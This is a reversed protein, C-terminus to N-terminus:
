ASCGPTCAMYVKGPGSPPDDEGATDAACAGNGGDTGPGIAGDLKSTTAPIGNDGDSAPDAEGDLTLAAARIGSGGDCAPDPAGNLKPAAARIGSGCDSAVDTAGDSLAIAKRSRSLEEEESLKGDVGRVVPM